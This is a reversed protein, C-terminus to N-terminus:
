EEKQAQAARAEAVGPDQLEAEALRAMLEQAQPDELLVQVASRVQPRVSQLLHVELLSDQLVKRLPFVFDPLPLLPHERLHCEQLCELRALSDELCEQIKRLDVWLSM